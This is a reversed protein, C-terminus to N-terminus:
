TQQYQKIVWSIIYRSLYDMPRLSINIKSKPPSNTRYMDILDQSITNIIWTKKEELKRNRDEAMGVGSSLGHLSNEIKTIINKLWIIEM